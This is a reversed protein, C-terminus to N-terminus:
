TPRVHDNAVVRRDLSTRASVARVDGHSKLPSGNGSDADAVVDPDSSTRSDEGIDRRVRHDTSPRHDDARKGFPADESSYWGLDDAFTGGAWGVSPRVRAWWGLLVALARPHSSLRRMASERVGMLALVHRLGFRRPSVRAAARLSRVGGVVRGRRLQRGARTALLESIRVLRLREALPNSFTFAELTTLMRETFDERWGAQDAHLRFRALPERLGYFAWGDRAARLWLTLDGVMDDRLPTAAEGATWVQRRFAVGCAPLSHELVDILADARRGAPLRTVVGLERGGVEWVNPAFVVGVSPDAHLVAAAAALFGPELADDENVVAVLDGRAAAVAAALNGAPGRVVPNRVYRVRPDGFTRVVAELTGGDDSVVVELDALTQCLISAIARRLGVADRHARVCVSFVPPEHTM